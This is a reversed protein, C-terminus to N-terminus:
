HATPPTANTATATDAADTLMGALQRAVEIPVLASLPGHIPHNLTVLPIVASGIRVTGVNWGPDIVAVAINGPTQETM